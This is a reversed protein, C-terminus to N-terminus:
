MVGTLRSELEDFFEDTYARGEANHFRNQKPQKPKTEAVKRTDYQGELVKPFNNPKVFWDFTILFGKGTKGQLFDSHKIKEIANIIEKEGYQNLRAVLSEYRKTGSAMKTIPKIGISALKNWEDVIYSVSTSNDIKVKSIKDQRIKDQPTMQNDSPQCITEMQNDYTNLLEAYISPKYRDKRILNNEKWDMIQAVLDENLLRIYGKSILVRLDDETAKTQAMVSYAEVVGDDDAAMGLDYYLLRTTPPM